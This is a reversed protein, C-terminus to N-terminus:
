SENSRRGFTTALGIAGIAILATVWPRSSILNTLTSSVEDIFRIGGNGSLAVAGRSLITAWYWVIFAGAGILVVGSIRTMYPAISRLRRVLVDRGFAMGVTIFILVTSMGLGYALFAAMGGAFSTQTFTGAVLSLFIPLTCSLSAVAYSIGFVFVSRASQDQRTAAVQPLRLNFYRGRWSAVGMAMLLIGVLLAAWPIVMTLSRVGAVIIAGFIGFVALFGLSVIGGVRLSSAVPSKAQGSDGGLFYGLYAPLMAFGCPNVTAVLGATFATALLTTM